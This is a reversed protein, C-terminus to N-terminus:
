EFQEFNIFMASFVVWTEVERMVHLSINYIIITYIYQIKHM